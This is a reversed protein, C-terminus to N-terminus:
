KEFLPVFNFSNVDFLGKDGLKLSPIVLLSLFSLTMFPATLQSGMKHAANNLIQYKKAVLVGPENSMLGGVPLPLEEMTSNDFAVIGGKMDVLQNIVSLIATDEVGAVIINHSDHAVTSGIAGKTIGMGKVFGVVAPADKYRNVVVLKIIDNAVDYVVERGDSFEPNWCYNDTLLEGDQAKIVRVSNFGDPMVVKLEEISAYSQRFVNITEEPDYSFSVGNEKTYVVNGNIHTELVEFGKLDKLVVFDAPDSERLLGIPLNYHQAPVVTASRLLDFLDVGLEVGLKLLRDIHGSEIIEDPHSDDTCLMLSDPHNKYLTHLASFNRAASGERIQIKMGLKLKELAENLFACEHDTGIGAAVYKELQEGSLGPAHGDVPKCLRTAAKIKALVEPDDFVVGPFNMMESLLWIDERQLLREVAESNLVAGSSEFSTAPVCSPAGFFFKLPCKKGNAIMFLVGEEGAVNAIEHPDTVVGITGRPVVMEAFRSPVVMSSEIHVHADIFGPMIYQDPVDKSSEISTIIGNKVNIIGNFITRDFLNIIHGSISYDTM